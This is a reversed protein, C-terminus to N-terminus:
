ITFALDIAQSDNAISDIEVVDDSFKRLVDGGYGILVSYVSFQKERKVALFKQLFEDSVDCEGDSIFIVDAKDFQNEGIMTIAEQLPKEYNTGGGNFKGFVEIMMEPSIQAKPFRFTECYDASAFLTLAFDRKQLRAITMLGLAVAKAWADKDGGMSGSQDIGCIVPGRGQRDTGELKYQLLSRELFRRQFDKKLVPHNLKMKEVPLVRELDAGIEIDVFEDQGRKIKTEQKQLAIRKFRGALEAIKKLQSSNRIREALALKEEFSTYTPNGPETGWGETLTEMQECENGAQQMAQRLDRRLQDANNKIQQELHKSVNQAAAQNEQLATETQQAQQQLEKKRNGKAKGALDKLSSLRDQLQQIHQELQNQANVQEKVEEPIKELIQESIKTSAIASNFEDLMTMSKLNKFEGTKMAEDLLSENLRYSSPINEAKKPSPKFLSSFVDQMLPPFTNLEKAGTEEIQQLKESQSKINEFTFRDYQDAKIVNVVSEIAKQFKSM